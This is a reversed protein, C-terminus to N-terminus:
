GATQQSGSRDPVASGTRGGGGTRDRDGAEGVGGDVLALEREALEVFPLAGMARHRALANELHGLAADPRGAVRALSGLYYEACGLFTAQGVRCNHSSFPVILQYLADAWDADALGCVTHSLGVMLYWWHFNRDAATVSEPTLGALVAEAAAHDGSEVAIWAALAQEGVSARGTQGAALIPALEAMRGQLWLWTVSLGVAIADSQSHGSRRFIDYARTASVEADEFRGQIGAALSDWMFGLRLFEPQGVRAALEHMEMAIAHATPFDGGEFEAHLECKMGRLVLEPDGIDQGIQRIRRGDDVQRAVDDPGCLAWYRYEISSAIITPDGTRVAVGIAEDALLQRADRPESFHGWHALRGLALAREASDGPGLDVLASRLLRQGHENPEAGAPLVGGYGLAAAAVVDLRGLVKGQDFAQAFREDAEILRGSKVMADALLLLLDCETDHDESFHRTSIDLAHQYHLVADEYAVRALAETGALRCYLLARDASGAAIGNVYHLAIEPAHGPDLGHRSELEQAIRLHTRVRRASGLGVDLATRVLDHVFRYADDTGNLETVVGAVQAEDLADLVDTESDDCSALLVGVPFHLGILAAVALVRKCPESLKMLRWHVVEALRDSLSVGPTTAVDLALVGDLAGGHALVDSAVEQLFFPNGGTFDRLRSAIPGDTTAPSGIASEVLALSMPPSLGELDIRTVDAVRRLGVLAQAMWDRGAAETDRYTGIILVPAAIASQLVHELLSLAPADAWHLDELVLVLPRERALSAILWAVAEFSQFREAEATVLGQDATAGPHGRVEPLVQALADVPAGDRALVAQGIPGVAISRLANRFGEFPALPDENCRGYLILDGEAACARAIEGALRTKGIGPEGTIMLLAKDGLGVRARVAMADVFEASRGIFDPASAPPLWTLDSDGPSPTVGDAPDADPDANPEGAPVAAAAAPVPTPAPSRPREGIALDLSARQDLIALELERLGPSPEIGLEDALQERLRQYARLADAQRGSRYLATMLVAWLQERLPHERVASEADTVVRQVQGLQLRADLLGELAGLRQEELRAIEPLAWAFGGADALAPGHWLDLAHEFLERAVAPDGAVLAERGRTCASDFSDVDLEGARLVLVASGNRTALRDAGLVRRLASLHSRLTSSAGDSPEDGWIDEVLRGLPVTHDRESLLRVLITRRRSGTVAVPGHEGRVDLPGLLSFRLPALGHDGPEPSSARTPTTAGDTGPGTM